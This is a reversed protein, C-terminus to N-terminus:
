EPRFLIRFLYDTFILYDRDGMKVIWDGIFAITRDGKTRICINSIKKDDKFETIETCFNVCEVMNVYDEVLVFQRAEVKLNNSEYKRAM